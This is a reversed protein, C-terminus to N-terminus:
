GGIKFIDLLYNYYGDSDNWARGYRKRGFVGGYEDAQAERPSTYYDFPLENNVDAIWAVM